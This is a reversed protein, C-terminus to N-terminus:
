QPNGANKLTPLNDLDVGDVAKIIREKVAQPLKELDGEGFYSLAKLTIQPNFSQGYIAKAAALATSLSIGHGIIADIDIYDKSEPRQQVVAAKMGALDILSAIKLGNEAIHAPEIGHIRPLGFFSVKVAGARDVRCTLTNKAQQIIQSDALFPIENYLAMTDFSQFAFFDFDISTRHGLHLAIATGGYLIFESPVEHLEKWLLRQPAPLISLQPSFSM